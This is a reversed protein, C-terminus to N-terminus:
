ISILFALSLSNPIFIDYANVKRIIKWYPSQIYPNLLFGAIWQVNDSSSDISDDYFYTGYKLVFGRLHDLLNESFLGDFVVIKRGDTKTTYELVKHKAPDPATFPADKSLKYEPLYWNKYSYERDQSLLPATILWFSIMFNNQAELRCGITTKPM